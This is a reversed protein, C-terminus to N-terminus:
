NYLAKVHEFIRDVIKNALEGSIGQHVQTQDLEIFANGDNRIRFRRKLRMRGDSYYKDWNLHNRRPKLKIKQHIRRRNTHSSPMLHLVRSYGASHKLNKLSDQFRSERMSHGDSTAQPGILSTTFSSSEGVPSKVNRTGSAQMLGRGFRIRTEDKEDYYEWPWNAPEVFSEHRMIPGTNMSSRKDRSEVSSKINKLQLTSAPVRYIENPLQDFQM